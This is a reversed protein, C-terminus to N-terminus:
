ETPSSERGVSGHGGDELARRLLDLAVLSAVNGLTAKVTTSTVRTGIPSALGGGAIFGAALAAALATGPQEELVYSVYSGLQSAAEGLARLVEGVKPETGETTM